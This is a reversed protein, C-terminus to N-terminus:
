ELQCGSCRYQFQLPKPRLVVDDLQFPSSKVADVSRVDVVALREDEEHDRVTLGLGHRPKRAFERM